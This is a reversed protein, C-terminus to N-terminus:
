SRFLAFFLSINQEEYIEIYSREGVNQNTNTIQICYRERETVTITKLLM